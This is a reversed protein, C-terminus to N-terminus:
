AIRVTLFSVMATNPLVLRADVPTRPTKTPSATPIVSTTAHPPLLPPVPGAPSAPSSPPEFPLLPALPPPVVVLLPALPLLLPALLPPSM